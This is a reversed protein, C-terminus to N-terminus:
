KHCVYEMFTLCTAQMVKLTEKYVSIFDFIIFLIFMFFVYVVECTMEYLFLVFYLFIVTNIFSHVKAVIERNIIKVVVSRM